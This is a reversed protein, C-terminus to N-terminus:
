TRYGKTYFPLRGGVAEVLSSEPRSALAAPSDQWIGTMILQMLRWTLTLLNVTLVNVLKLPCDPALFDAKGLFLFSFIPSGAM